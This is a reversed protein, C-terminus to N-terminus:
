QNLISSNELVTLTYDEKHFGVQILTKIERESLLRRLLTEVETSSCGMERSIDELNVNLYRTKELEAKRKLITKLHDIKNM